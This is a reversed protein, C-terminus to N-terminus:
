KLEFETNTANKKIRVTKKEADVSLVAYEEGKVSFKGGPAVTIPKLDPVDFELTARQEILPDGPWEPNNKDWM